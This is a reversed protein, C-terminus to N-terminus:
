PAGHDMSVPRKLSTMLLSVLCCKRERCELFVKTAVPLGTCALGTKTIKKLLRKIEDVPDSLLLLHLMSRLLPKM